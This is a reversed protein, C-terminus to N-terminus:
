RQDEEVDAPRRPDERDPTWGDYRTRVGGGARVSGLGPRGALGRGVRGGPRRSGRRPRWRVGRPRHSRRERGEAGARAPGRHHGGLGRRRRRDGQGARGGHPAAGRVAARRRAARAVGRARGRAAHGSGARRPAAVAAAATALQPHHLARGRPAGLRGFRAFPQGHGLHALGALVRGAGGLAGRGSRAHDRLAPRGAQPLQGRPPGRLRRAAPGPHTRARGPRGPHGREGARAGGGRTRGPSRPGRGARRRRHGNRPEDLASVTTDDEPAIAEPSASCPTPPAAQRVGVPGIADDGM